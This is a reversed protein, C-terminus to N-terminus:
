EQLTFFAFPSISLLPTSNDVIHFGFGTLGTLDGLSKNSRVADKNLYHAKSLAEMDEIESKMQDANTQEDVFLFHKLKKLKIRFLRVPLAESLYEKKGEPNMNFYELNKWHDIILFHDKGGEPLRDRYKCAADPRTGRGIM